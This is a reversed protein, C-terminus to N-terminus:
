EDHGSRQSAKSDANRHRQADSEEDYQTQRADKKALNREAMADMRETHGKANDTKTDKMENIQGRLKKPSDKDPSAAPSALQKQLQASDLSNLASPLTM